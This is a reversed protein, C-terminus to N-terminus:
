RCLRLRARAVGEAQCSSERLCRTRRERAGKLRLTGPPAVRKFRKEAPIFDERSSPARLANVAAAVGAAVGVLFVGSPTFMRTLVAGRPGSLALGCRLLQCPQHASSRRLQYDPRDRLPRGRLPELSPSRCTPIQHRQYSLWVCRRHDWGPERRCCSGDCHNGYRSSSGCGGRGGRCIRAASRLAIRSLHAAVLPRAIM